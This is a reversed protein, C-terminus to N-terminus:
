LPLQLARTLGAHLLGSEQPSPGPHLCHGRGSVEDVGWPAAGWGAPARRAMTSAALAPPRQPQLRAPSFTM